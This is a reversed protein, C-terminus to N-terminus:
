GRAMGPRRGGTTREGHKSYGVLEEVETLSLRGLEMPAAGVGGSGIGPDLSRERGAESDDSSPHRKM